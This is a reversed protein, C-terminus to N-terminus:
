ACGGIGLEQASVSGLGVWARMANIISLDRHVRTYKGQHMTYGCAGEVFATDKPVGLCGSSPSSGTFLACDSLGDPFGAGGADMFMYSSLVLKIYWDADTRNFLQIEFARHKAVDKDKILVSGKDGMDRSSSGQTNILIRNFFIPPVYLIKNIMIMMKFRLGVQQFSGRDV